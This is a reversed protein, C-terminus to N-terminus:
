MEQPENPIHNKYKHDQHLTPNVKFAFEGFEFFALVKKLKFVEKQTCLVVCAEKM